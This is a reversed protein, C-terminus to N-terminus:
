RRPSRSTSTPRRSTTATSRSIAARLQDNHCDACYNEIVGNLAAMSVRPRSPRAYTRASIRPAFAAPTLVAAAPARTGTATGVKFSAVAVVAAVAAFTLRMSFGDRHM